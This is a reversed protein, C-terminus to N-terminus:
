TQADIRYPGTTHNQYHHENYLAVAHKISHTTVFSLSMQRMNFIAQRSTSLAPAGLVSAMGSMLAPAHELSNTNGFSEMLVCLWCIREDGVWFDPRIRM